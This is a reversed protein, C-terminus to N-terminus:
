VKAKEGKPLLSEGSPSLEVRARSFFLVSCNLSCSCKRTCVLCYQFIHASELTIPPLLMGQRQLVSANRLLMDASTDFGLFSFSLTSTSSFDKRSESWIWIGFNQKAPLSSIGMSVSYSFDRSPSMLFPTFGQPLASDWCLWLAIRM